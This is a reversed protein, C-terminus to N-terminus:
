KQVKQKILYSSPLPISDCWLASVLMECVNFLMLYPQQQQHTKNNNDGVRNKKLKDMEHRVGCNQVTSVLISAASCTFPHPTLSLSNFSNFRGEVQSKPNFNMKERARRDHM